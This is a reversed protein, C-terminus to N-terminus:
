VTRDHASERLLEHLKEELPILNLVDEKNYDLLLRLADARGHRTYKEWLRVAMFGNVGATKREIGYMRELEKLGGKIQLQKKVKFLDYSQHTLSLDLNLHRRIQPLDFHDGNFTVIIEAKGLCAQIQDTTIERGVFQKFNSGGLCIGIVSINGERDTEIDLYAKMFLEKGKVSDNLDLVANEIMAPVPRRLNSGRCELICEPFLRKFSDSSM